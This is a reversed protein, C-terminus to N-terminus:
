QGPPLHSAPRIRRNHRSAAAGLGHELLDALADAGREVLEAAAAEEAASFPALVHDAWRAPDLPSDLPGVGLRLRPVEDTGVSALISALGNQGGDSGGARIRVSGLTLQLDDCVVVPIVAAAAAALPDSAAVQPRGHRANWALWALGSRNMYTLPELLTLPGAPGAGTAARYEPATETFQLGLRRALEEVCLFGVNHRTRRYRDGPNGLGMVLQM